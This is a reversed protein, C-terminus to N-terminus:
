LEPIPRAATLKRLRGECSAETRGLQQAIERM